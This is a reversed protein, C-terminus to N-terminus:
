IVEQDSEAQRKLTGIEGIASKLALEAGKLKDVLFDRV